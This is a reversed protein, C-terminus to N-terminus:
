FFILKPSTEWCCLCLGIAHFHSRVKALIVAPQYLLRWMPSSM